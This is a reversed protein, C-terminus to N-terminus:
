VLFSFSVFVVVLTVLVGAFVQLFTHAKLRLRAWGVLFILVTLGPLLKPNVWIAVLFFFTIGVLHVSIKWYFNILTVLFSLVTFSVGFAFIFKPAELFLAFLSFTFSGAIWALNVNKRQSRNTIFWDTIKGVKKEYFYISLPPLGMFVAVMALWFIKSELSLDLYIVILLVSFFSTAFPDFIYSLTKALYDIM